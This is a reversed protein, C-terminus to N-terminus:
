IVGEIELACLHTLSYDIDISFETFYGYVLLPEFGARLSGIFVCLIGDLATLTRYISNFRSAETVVALTNKKSNSRRVITLNGFDNRVKKTYSIIGAKAGMKTKGIGIVRGPKLVGIGANGSTATLTVTLECSAFQAPLDTLVVDTLQEFDSMFWDFFSEIITADLDIERTYVTTGGPVDKMVVQATRADADFMGLGSTSGPRMVIVMPSLCESATGIEEDFPAWVNNASVELWWATDTLAHGINGAQASQYIMHATNDQVRDGLAYTAAGSYAQYLTCYVEWWTPSSAPTHGTNSGAKSRYVTILGAAGAVSAKNGLAYTTGGAYAAPAIELATSSSLMADTMVHPKLVLMDPILNM